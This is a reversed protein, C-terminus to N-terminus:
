RWCLKVKATREGSVFCGELMVEIRGFASLWSREFHCTELFVFLTREEFLTMNRLAFDVIFKGTALALDPRLRQRSPEIRTTSWFYGFTYQRQM